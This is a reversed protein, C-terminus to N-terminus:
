FRVIKKFDPSNSKAMVVAPVKDVNPTEKILPLTALIDIQSKDCFIIANDMEGFMYPPMVQVTVIWGETNPVLARFATNLVEYGMHNGFKNKLLDSSEKRYQALDDDTVRPNNAHIWAAVDPKNYRIIQFQMTREDLKTPYEVKSALGAGSCRVVLVSSALPDFQNAEVLVAGILPRRETRPDLEGDSLAVDISFGLAAQETAIADAPPNSSDGDADFASKVGL